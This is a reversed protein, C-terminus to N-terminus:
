SQVEQAPVTQGVGVGRRGAFVADTADDTFEKTKLWTSWGLRGQAGGSGLRCAPVEAKKLTLQVDFDLEEGAFFKAIETLPTFADGSPLFTAFDAFSIPGIELTFKAHPDWFRSGIVASTGLASNATGLRTLSEPPIALWQGTFQRIGVPVEFYGRIIGELASASRAHRALLGCYFMLAKEHVTLRDMLGATGMGVLDLLGQSFRDRGRGKVAAREYGIPFRHKDWARYFFSAFRHNFLDLFDRFSHDKRRVRDILLETYHRPLVGSPGTMGMFTISMEPAAAGESRPAIEQIASAPFALSLHARIRVAEAAPTAEVGIPRRNPYLREFLRVAQFFDFRFGEDFLTRDLPSDTRGSEAAM